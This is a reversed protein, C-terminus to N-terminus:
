ETTGYYSVVGAGAVVVSAGTAYLALRRADGGLEDYLLIGWAGTVLMSCLGLPLNAEDPVLREDKDDDDPLLTAEAQDPPAKKVLSASVVLALGCIVVLIGVLSLAVSRMGQDLIYASWVYATVLYCAAAIGSPIAVGANPIAVGLTLGSAVTLIAGSLLGWNTWHLYGEFAVVVVAVVAFGFIFAVNLLLPPLRAEVVRRSKIIAPWSGNLAASGVAALYGAASMSAREVVASVSLRRRREREMSCLLAALAAKEDDILEDLPAYGTTGYSEPTLDKCRSTNKEDYVVVRVINTPRGDRLEYAVCRVGDDLAYLEVEAYEPEADSLDSSFGASGLSSAASMGGRKRRKKRKKKKSSKPPSLMADPGPVDATTGLGRVVFEPRSGFSEISDVSQSHSLANKAKLKTHRKYHLSSTDSEGRLRADEIAEFIKRMCITTEPDM